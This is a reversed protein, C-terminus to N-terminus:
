GRIERIVRIACRDGIYDRAKAARENWIAVLLFAPTPKACITDQGRM